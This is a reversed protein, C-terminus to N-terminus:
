ALYCVIFTVREAKLINRNGHCYLCVETNNSDAKLLFFFASSYTISLFIEPHPIDPFNPLQDTTLSFTSLYPNM